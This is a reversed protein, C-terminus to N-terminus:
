DKILNKFHFKHLNFLRIKHTSMDLYVIFKIFIYYYVQLVSPRLYISSLHESAVKQYIKDIYDETVFFGTVGHTTSSTHLYLSM